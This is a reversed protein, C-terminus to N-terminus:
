VGAELNGGFFDSCSFYCNDFESLGYEKEIWNLAEQLCIMIYGPTKYQAMGVNKYNLFREFELVCLINGDKEIVLGGNHSGHYSINNM